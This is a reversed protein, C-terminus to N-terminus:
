TGEKIEKRMEKLYGQDDFLLGSDCPISLHM